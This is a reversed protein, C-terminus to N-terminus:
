AAAQLATSAPEIGVGAELGTETAPTSEGVPQRAARDARPEAVGARTAFSTSALSKFDRARLPTCTRDRSRAGSGASRKAEELPAMRTAHHWARNERRAIWSRLRTSDEDGCAACIVRANRLQQMHHSRRGLQQM